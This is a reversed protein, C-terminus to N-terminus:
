SNISKILNRLNHFNIYISKHFKVTSKKFQYLNEHIQIVEKRDNKKQLTFIYNIKEQIM